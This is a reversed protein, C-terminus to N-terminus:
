LCRRAPGVGSTHFTEVCDIISKPVEKTVVFDHIYDVIGRKFEFTKLQQRFKFHLGPAELDFDIMCVRKKFESLWKAVNAMALTRGVGGKYSYFTITQM